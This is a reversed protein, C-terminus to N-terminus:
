AEPEADDDAAPRLNYIKASALRYNGVHRTQTMPPQISNRVAHGCWGLL